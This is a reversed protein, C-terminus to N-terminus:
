KVLGQKIRRRLNSAKGITLRKQSRRRRVEYVGPTRNPVYVGEGIRADQALDHWPTWASWELVIKPIKLIQKSM